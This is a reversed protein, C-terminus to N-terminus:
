RRYRDRIFEQAHQSAKELAHQVGINMQNAQHIIDGLAIHASRVGAFSENNIALRLVMAADAFRDALAKIEDSTPRLNRVAFLEARRRPTIEADHDGVQIAADAM